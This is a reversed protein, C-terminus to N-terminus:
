CASNGAWWCDHFCYITCLTKGKKKTRKNIKKKLHFIENKIKPLVIGFGEPECIVETKEIHNTKSLVATSGIEKHM